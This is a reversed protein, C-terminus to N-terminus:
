NLDWIKGDKIRVLEATAEDIASKLKEEAVEQAELKMQQHTRMIIKVALKRAQKEVHEELTKDKPVIAYVLQMDMANAADRLANLTVSGTSEREELQRIAESTVSLRKALQRRSLNIAGRISAIWGESPIVVKAGPQFLELKDNLKKFILDKVSRM